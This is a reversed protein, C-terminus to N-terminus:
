VSKKRLKWKVDKYNYGKGRVNSGHSEMLEYERNKQSYDTIKELISITYDNGYDNFDSQMDEVPHRGRMLASLHHQIRTKPKCSSGIYEKGTVNHKISYVVKHHEAPTGEYLKEERIGKILSNLILGAEENSLKLIFEILNEKNSM